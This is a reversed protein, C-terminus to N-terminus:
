RGVLSRAEAWALPKESLYLDTAGNEDKEAKLEVLWRLANKLRENEAELRAVKAPLGASLDSKSQLDRNKAAQVREGYEHDYTM